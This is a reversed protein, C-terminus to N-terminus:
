RWHESRGGLAKPDYSLESANRVAGRFTPLVIEKFEAEATGSSDYDGSQFLPLSEYKEVLDELDGPSAFLPGALIWCLCSGWKRVKM